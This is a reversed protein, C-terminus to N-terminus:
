SALVGHVIPHQTQRHRKTQHELLTEDNERSRKDANVRVQSASQSKGALRDSIHWVDGRKENAVGYGRKVAKALTLVSTLQVPRKIYPNDMASDAAQLALLRGNTLFHQLILGSNSQTITAVTEGLPVGLAVAGVLCSMASLIALAGVMVKDKIRSGECQALTADIEQIKKIVSERHKTLIEPKISENEDTSLLEMFIARLDNLSMPEKKTIKPRLKALFDAIKSKKDTAIKGIVSLLGTNQHLLLDLLKLKLKEDHECVKGLAHGLNSFLTQLNDESPCNAELDLDM